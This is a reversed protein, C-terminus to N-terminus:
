LFINFMGLVPGRGAEDIGMICPLEKLNSSISSHFTYNENPQNLFNEVNM